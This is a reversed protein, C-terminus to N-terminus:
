KNEYILIIQSPPNNIGQNFVIGSLNIFPIVM